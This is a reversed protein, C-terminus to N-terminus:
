IETKLQSLFRWDSADAIIKQPTSKIAGAEGLRLAYFRVTDEPDIDRWVGYALSHMTHLAYDYTDHYGKDVLFRAVRAPDKAITDAARLVASMVRKTAVPNKAVFDRNGTILCCYYQSWPKNVMSDLVVHGIGKLRLEQPQTPFGLFADIEGAQLQQQVEAFTRQVVKVDTRIDMGFQALVAALYAYHPTEATLESTVAITRGMLDRVAKIRETGILEFCGIHVGALVRMQNGKDIANVMVAAFGSALDLDGASLRKSVDSANMAVYRIDTFGDARLQDEALYWPALCISPLRAVRITTTELAGATATQMAANPRELGCGALLALGGAGATRLLQRRRV